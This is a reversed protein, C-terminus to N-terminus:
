LCIATKNYSIEHYQIGNLRWINISLFYEPPNLSGDSSHIKGISLKRVSILIFIVFFYALKRHLFTNSSIKASGGGGGQGWRSVFPTFFGAELM